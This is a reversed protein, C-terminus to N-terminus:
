AQSFNYDYKKSYVLNYNWGGPKKINKQKQENNIFFGQYLSTRPACRDARSTIQERENNIDALYNTTLNNPAPSAVYRGARRYVNYSEKERVRGLLARFKM